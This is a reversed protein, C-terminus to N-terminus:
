IHVIKFKFLELNLFNLNSSNEFLFFPVLIHGLFVCRDPFFLLWLLQAAVHAPGGLIRRLHRAHLSRQSRRIPGGGETTSSSRLLDSKWLNVFAFLDRHRIARTPSVSM